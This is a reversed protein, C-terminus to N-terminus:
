QSNWEVNSYGATGNGETERVKRTNKEEFRYKETGKEALWERGKQLRYMEYM